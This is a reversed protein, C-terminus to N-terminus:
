AGARNTRRASAQKYSRLLQWKGFYERAGRVQRAAVLIITRTGIDFGHRTRRQSIYYDCRTPNCWGSRAVYYDAMQLKRAATRANYMGM